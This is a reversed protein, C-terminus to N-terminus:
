ITQSTLSNQATEQIQHVNSAYKQLKNFYLALAIRYYFVDLPFVEGNDIFNGVQWCISGKDSLVRVLEKIIDKQTALYKEISTKTEYSKGINYPPSTVILDFKEKEEKQLYTLVNENRIIYKESKTQTAM